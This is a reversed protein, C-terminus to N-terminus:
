SKKVEATSHRYVGGPRRQVVTGRPLRSVKLVERARIRARTEKGAIVYFSVGNPLDVKWAPNRGFFM